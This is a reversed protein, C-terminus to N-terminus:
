SVDVIDYINAIKWKRNIHAEMNKYTINDHDNISITNVLINEKFMWSLYPSPRLYSIIYDKNSKKNNKNIIINRKM